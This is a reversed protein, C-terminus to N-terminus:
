ECPEELRNEVHQRVNQLSVSSSAAANPSLPYGEIISLHFHRAASLFVHTKRFPINTSSGLLSEGIDETSVNLAKRFVM